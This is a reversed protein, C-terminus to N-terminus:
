RDPRYKKRFAQIGPGSEDRGPDHAWELADGRYPTLDAPRIRYEQIISRRVQDALPLFPLLTSSRLDYSELISSCFSNDVFIAALRSDPSWAVHAFTTMCRSRGDITKEPWWGTQVTVSVVCDPFTCFEKVRVTASRNPARSTILTKSCGVPLILLTFLM